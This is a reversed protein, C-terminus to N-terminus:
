QFLSFFIHIHWEFRVLRILDFAVIKASINKEDCNYDRLNGIPRLAGSSKRFKQSKAPM